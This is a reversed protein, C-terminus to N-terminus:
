PIDEQRALFDVPTLVPLSTRNAFDKPNWTVLTEVQFEEAIQLVFVDGLTMRKEIGEFLSSLFSSHWFEASDEDTVLPHLIAVPYTEEFSYM